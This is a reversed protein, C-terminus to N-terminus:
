GLIGRARAIAEISPRRRELEEADKVPLFRAGLGERPVRLFRAPLGFTIENLIREFQVAKRDGVTKEVEVYVWEMRLAALAEASALFTNTNFVPVVKPDFGIPLRFDEAIVPRGNWRMPGGGKDGGKDVVEVTLPGGHGLHWGLIVPDVTAGLNDLNAIWVIKGGRAIFRGLLGSERLADPLDGHGTAYVSPEGREDLFLGGEPTLRLSVHQEFTTCRDDGEQLRAGLAERIPGNTAESTMLWLPVPAGLTRRLHDSEALRLDLFTRGPLVEVLAKVVGGMRTAMGGALVCLAVEGRRLAALGAERCRAHEPTGEAPMAVVDGPAPPEVTGPLRNRADRDKGISAAWRAVRDPDFGRARLRELLSTPLAAIQEQLATM